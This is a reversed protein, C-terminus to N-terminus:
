FYREDTIAFHPREQMYQPAPGNCDLDRCTPLFSRRPSSSGALQSTDHRGHLWRRAPIDRVSYAVIRRSCTSVSRETSRTMSVFAARSVVSSRDQPQTIRRTYGRGIRGFGHRGASRTYSTIAANYTAGWAAPIVPSPRTIRPTYGRRNRETPAHRRASRPYSTVHRRFRRALGFALCSFVGRKRPPNAVSM